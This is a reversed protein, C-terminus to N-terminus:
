LRIFIPSSLRVALQTQDQSMTGNIILNDNMLKELFHELKAADHEEEAGIISYVFTCLSILLHLNFDLLKSSFVRM